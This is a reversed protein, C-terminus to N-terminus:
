RGKRTMAQGCTITGKCEQRPRRCSLSGKISQKSFGEVQMMLGQM